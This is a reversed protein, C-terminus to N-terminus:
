HFCFFRQKLTKFKRPVFLHHVARAALIMKQGFLRAFFRHRMM